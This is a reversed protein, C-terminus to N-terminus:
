RRLRGATRRGSGHDRGARQAVDDLGQVYVGHATLREGLGLTEQMVGGEEHDRGNLHGVEHMLVTLLDIKYQEGQNGPTTFESDNGPTPDVFWGHGAANDDLWITNGSALGLTSGGLDAIRINIPSGSQTLAPLLQWRAITEALLPQVHSLNLPNTESPALAASNAARLPSTPYGFFRMLLPHKINWDSSRYDNGAVIISGDSQLAV